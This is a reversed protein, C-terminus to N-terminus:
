KQIGTIIIQENISPVIVSVTKLNTVLLGPQATGTADQNLNLKILQHYLWNVEIDTKPTAFVTVVVQKVPKLQFALFGGIIVILIFFLLKKM